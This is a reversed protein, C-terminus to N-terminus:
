IEELYMTVKEHNASIPTIDFHHYTYADGNIVVHIEFYKYYTELANNVAFKYIKDCPTFNDGIQQTFEFAFQKKM